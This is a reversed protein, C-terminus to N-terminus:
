GSRLDRLYPLRDALHAYSAPNVRARLVVDTDGARALDAGDPAVVCSLGAYRRGREGGCRDAYAVFVGNEFARTPVLKEAVFAFDHSLAAFRIRPGSSRALPAAPREPGGCAACLAALCWATAPGRRTSRLPTPHAM